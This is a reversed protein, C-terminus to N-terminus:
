FSMAAVFCDAFRPHTTLELYTARAAIEAAFLRRERSLLLQQAGAGAANGIQRFRKQELDPLLGVRVASRLDLYSGFAGAVIVEDLEGADIGAAALLLETGAAIAGKALQIECVDARTFVIDRHHGAQAAPVLVCRAAAGQEGGVLPHARALGGRREVIGARLGEAVADLIGSGCVGVAPRADITQVSFRGDDYHVREIAGPAARMGDTIHAGEFAPGSATSCSWLREDHALSIETNTGIDLALVTGAREAVGSALLMAVHDAGVFGAILPPLLVRAGTAFHLGLEAASLDLADSAAAVYPAQGLQRVPLGTFLHHMATNGVAVCDVIAAREAGADTCLQAALGDIAKVISDRLESAAATGTNAHAIRSMVDEGRSVQPNVAGARAITEGNELDVLYGALKTTGLDLALGLLRSALPRIAVLEARPRHVALRASWDQARLAGPLEALVALGIQPRRAAQEGALADLARTADARLDVPTPAALSVDVGAVAPDLTVPAGPGELQLRQTSTLSESLVEIRVDGLLRTQCALRVGGALAAEGLQDRENASPASVAGDLVRVRCCGCTGAGGCVSAVGVGLAEAAALITAGAPVRARRGVPEIEVAVLPQDAAM